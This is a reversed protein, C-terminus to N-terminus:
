LSKVYGHTHREMRVRYGKVMEPQRVASLMDLYFDKDVARGAYLQAETLNPNYKVKVHRQQTFILYKVNPNIRIFFGGLTKGTRYFSM